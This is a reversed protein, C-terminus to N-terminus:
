PVITYNLLIESLEENQEVTLGRELLGRTATGLTSFPEEIDDFQINSALVKIFETGFPKGLNFKFPYNKDPISYVTNANIFNNKYYENPFILQMDGNVDIHYIKIYCGYESFFNIVLNDGNKYVAGNGKEIWANVLSNDVSSDSILSIKNLINLADSYNDPYISVSIDSKSIVVQESSLVAGSEVDVLDLYVNVSNGNDYYKGTILAKVADLEGIRVAQNEDVFGSHQFDWQELILDLNDTESLKFKESAQVAVKLKQKFLGSFESGFERDSYVINCIGIVLNESVRNEMSQLATSIKYDITDALVPFIIFLFIFYLYKQKM